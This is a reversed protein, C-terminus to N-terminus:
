FKWGVGLNFFGVDGTDDGLYPADDEFDIHRYGGLVYMGETVRYSLKLSADTYTTDIDSNLHTRSFDYSQHPKPAAWAEGEPMRFPDIEAESANRAVDVKFYFKDSPKVKIGGVVTSSEVNYNLLARASGAQGSM